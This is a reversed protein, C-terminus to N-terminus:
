TNSISQASVRRGRDLKWAQFQVQLSGSKIGAMDLLERLRVGTWMANGM